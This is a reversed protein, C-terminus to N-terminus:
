SIICTSKVSDVMNANANRQQDAAQRGWESEQMKQAMRIDQQEIQAQMQMALIRDRDEQTTTHDKVEKIGDDMGNYALLSSELAAAMLKGEQEDLTGKKGAKKDGGGSMQLALQYDAESQGRQALLQEPDLNCAADRQGAASLEAQPAPRSFGADVYETDGDIVDLKEWVVNPVNAYGLDTVLLYLLGEHKTITSFHNNRFFVCLENEDLKDYLVALGYQTLQHATDELFNNILEGVTALKSLEEQKEQFDARLQGVSQRKGKTITLGDTQQPQQEPQQQDADEAPPTGVHIWVNDSCNELKKLQEELKHLETSAENGQVVSEILENYTKCGVLECLQESQPDLLWGHVMKVSLLDFTTLEKTFEMGTPGNTFKPNVDMGYQLKPLINLVDHFHQESNSEHLDNPKNYNYNMAKEALMNVVEELSACGNRICVSPLSIAGRLLLANAAALLPCPGNENQLLIRRDKKQYRVNKLRYAM